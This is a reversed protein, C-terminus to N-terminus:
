DNKFDKFKKNSLDSFIIQNLLSDLSAKQYIRVADLTSNAALFYKKRQQIFRVFAYISKLKALHRFKM